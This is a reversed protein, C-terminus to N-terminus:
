KMQEVIWFVAPCRLANDAVGRTRFTFGEKDTHPYERCANPRVDYITCLNDEGLFPCPRRRAMYSRDEEDFELHREVFTDASLELHAAVRDIDTQTFAINMTRCCNACRTCDVIQFAQRHLKGALEDPDFGYDEWKMSRLFQYNEEDNNEANQQWAEVVKDHDTM